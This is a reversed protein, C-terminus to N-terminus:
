APKPKPPDPPADTKTTEEFLTPQEPPIAEILLHLCAQLGEDVIAYADPGYARQLAELRQRLASGMRGFVEHVHSRKILNKEREKVEMWVLEAKGARYRELAPSDAGSYLDPDEGPAPKPPTAQKVKHEVWADIAGRARILVSRSDGEKIDAPRL